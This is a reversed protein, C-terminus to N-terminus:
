AIDDNVIVPKTTSDLLPISTIIDSISMSTWMIYEKWQLVFTANTGPMGSTFLKGVSVLPYNLLFNVVTAVVEVPYSTDQKMYLEGCEYITFPESYIEGVAFHQLININM